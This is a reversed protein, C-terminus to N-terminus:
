PQSSRPAAGAVPKGEADLVVIEGLQLERIAPEIKARDGVLLLSAADPKAYKKAAALTQALSATNTADYERQLETPPLGLIWNDGVQQSLRGLSEFQQAYGRLRRERATAFEQETIPKAGALAKMERDFEVVSERTKDTQVGGAASWLGAHRMLALNSFVGYSYGKGERLNLNLRTGFGGGGWVADALKLADYDPSTREPASLWQSVVTQAADPRDVIYVRAAPAGAAPPVTILPAAGGTWVGFYQKALATAEALTVDGAFIVASSGPKWWAQHFAVLDERTIKEVTGRLGQVPRGYPHEPGFALMPRIRTALANADRDQQAIADLLRKKERAVEREPFTANQAVDALIALAPSLNRKLVDLGVRASERGAGGTLTTGLDAFAEEVQLANRTKTGLDIVTTTLQAVGAKGAPDAVAGARTVVTVNLKPLDDREVVLVELGNELKTSKVAPAVFPRDAGLPPQQSRDLTMANAPRVSKESHFRIVARNRTNLWESVAARVAAPTVARTRALDAELKGPDGTFINYKNLVDAKGGFGGVRELGSIFEAEQKNKARDVEAATPGDTALKGIEEAVITEIEALSSGPRATAQVVFLGAIEGSINFATVNTAIQRDYVLARNLRSSLGDSLIRATIDLTADGASFYEAGPWGIYVRELSVRDNVQVLKEADLRPIWKAPRDLAPGPPIDAFYKEVLRKAEGPEFDGAIVLSLNNPTYYTRFFEKVDDLSANTLDEQSGIVPWSYPHGKPFVTESMLPYWRGYPQNELGQRRENKVVDRQNDLKEKTTVDALTALRDSEFWLVNELNASPVTAFYNTRDQSTTGNVGGEFVNAGAREAYTFYEGEANKSGQFMMHEFLHAFGTRGPKENKSGVHFWQNVHVIPLKRDVHLIVQLGNPLTYKEFEVKPTANVTSAPAAAQEAAGTSAHLRRDLPVIATLVALLAITAYRSARSM